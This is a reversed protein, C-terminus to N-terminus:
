TYKKYTKRLFAKTFIKYRPTMRKQVDKIIVRIRPNYNKPLANIYKVGRSNHKDSYYILEKDSINMILQGTTSYNNKSKRYTHFRSSLNVYNKNLTHAIDDYSTFLHMEKKVIKQRLYSSIGDEGNTFGENMDHNTYVDNLKAKKVTYEHDPNNKIHYCVGNMYAFTHGELTYTKDNKHTLINLIKKTDTEGLADFIRSKKLHKHKMYTNKDDHIHLTANTIATGCENMGEIWTSHKDHLYAVEIGNILTHIIEISPKYRKDRNKVLVFNNKIKTYLIICM